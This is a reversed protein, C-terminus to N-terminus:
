FGYRLKAVIERGSDPLPVSGGNYAQIFGPRKDGLDFGGLSATWPGQNWVLQLNILLAADFKKLALGAATANYDYGWRDGLFTLSPDLSFGGGLKIGSYLTFKISSAGLFRDDEGPVSWDPVKNDGQNLSVSANVFGWPQRFKWELEAGKTTAEPGNSYGLSGYVLPKDLKTQFLTLTLLSGGSQWGFELEADQTKEPEIKTAASARNTFVQVNPTRFAGALLAKVHFPGFLATLAFRPVFASGALDHKEYRGGVTVNVPGRYTMEAFAGNIGYTVRDAGDYTVIATGESDKSVSGTDTYRELGANFSFRSDLDWALTVGGKDRQVTRERGPKYWSSVRRYSYAPTLTLAESVKWTYRLDGNQSIFSRESTPALSTPDQIKYDELLGRFAFGGNTYGVNAMRSKMDSYDGANHESGDAETYTFPSRRGADTFLGVTLKSDGWSPAILANFAGRARGSASGFMGGVGAKVSGSGGTLDEGQLTVIKIVALEALGGYIASGPGRIIEIRKIQDIPFRHGLLMNGYLLEPMEIGDLLVLAKGEYAWLGRAFLGTAGEVDYGFDFGPVQRLVDILDRGGTAQIEEHSLVTIVGPSERLTTAKASAVTVPTNLLDLLEKETADQAALTLTLFPLLSLARRM